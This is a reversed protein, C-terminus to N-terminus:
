RIEVARSADRDGQRVLDTGAATPDVCPASALSPGGVSSQATTSLQRTSYHHIGARPRGAAAATPEALRHSHLGGMAERPTVGRCCSSYPAKLGFPASIASILSIFTLRLWPTDAHASSSEAMTLHECGITGAIERAHLRLKMNTSTGLQASHPPLPSVPGPQRHVRFRDTDIKTCNVEPPHHPGPILLPPPFVPRPAASPHWRPPVAASVSTSVGDARSRGGTTQTCIAACSRDHERSSGGAHEAKHGQRQRRM